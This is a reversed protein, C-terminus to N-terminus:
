APPPPTHGARAARREQRAAHRLHFEALQHLLLAAFLVVALADGVLNGSSGITNPFERLRQVIEVVLGFGLVIRYPQGLKTVLWEDLWHAAHFIPGLM